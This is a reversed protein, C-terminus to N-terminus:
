DPPDVRYHHRRFVERGAQGTLFDIFRRALAKDQSSKMLGIVVHSIVNKEKPIAVVDTSDALNAAIADWVVAADIRGTKVWVGLENVTASHMTRAPDLKAADLGNRAFIDKAIRGIQPGDPRGLGVKVDDRFFDALAAIGKPNGKRVVIVPVFYTVATKSEVLDGAQDVYWVDGPMFLDAKRDIKVKALVMGSGGYDVEVVVGTEARFQEVAADVARRLGAGAYLTLTKTRKRGCGTVTLAVALCLVAAAAPTRRASSLPSTM